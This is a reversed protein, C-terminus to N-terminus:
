DAALNESSTDLQGAAQKREGNEIFFRCVQILAKGRNMEGTSRLAQEFVAIDGVYLVPKIQAKTDGLNRDGSGGSESEDGSVDGLSTKSAEDSMGAFLNDLAADAVDIGGLLENLRTRIPSPRRRCRTSRRSCSRKRQMRCTSPASPTRSLRHTSGLTALIPSCSRRTEEGYGIIRNRWQAPLEPPATTKKPPRKAM